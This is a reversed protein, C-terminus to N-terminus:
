QGRIRYRSIRESSEESTMAATRAEGTVAASHTM